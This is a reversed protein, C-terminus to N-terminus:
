KLGRTGRLERTDEELRDVRVEIEAMKRTLAPVDALQASLTAIQGNTVAQQTVVKQMTDNTKELGDAQKDMRATFSNAGWILLSVFGAGIGAAVWREVTGLSFHWRGDKREVDM